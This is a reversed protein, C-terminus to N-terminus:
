SGRVTAPMAGHELVMRRQWPTSKFGAREKVEQQHRSMRQSVERGDIDVRNRIDISFKPRPPVAAATEKAARAAETAAKAPAVGVETQAQGLKNIEELRAHFAEREKRRKEKILRDAFTAARVERAATEESIIGLAALGKAGTAHASAIGREFSSRWEEMATRLLEFVFALGKIITTLMKAVMSGFARFYSMSEGTASKTAPGLWGFLTEFLQGLTNVLTEIASRLPAFYDMFGRFYEGITADLFAFVTGVVTKLATWAAKIIDIAGSVWQAVRVTDKGYKKTLETVRRQAQEADSWDVDLVEDLAQRFNSISGALDDFTGDFSKLLRLGLQKGLNAVSTTMRKWQHTSTESAKRFAEETAGAGQRMGEMAETFNAFGEQSVLNLITNGAEVSGFLKDIAVKDGKTIEVLDALFKAWGKTQVAATSFDKELDGIVEEAAKTPHAIGALVAKLGSMTEATVVGGKTVAVITSLLEDYSLGAGKAVAAARGVSRSVEEFTTVGKKNAINISDAVRLAEPATKLGWVNMVTTLGSVATKVDTYGGVAAKSAVEMFGLSEEQKVGASIAQFTADTMDKTAMGYKDSLRLIDKTMMQMQGPVVDLLTSIRAMGTELEGASTIMKKFAAAIGTVVAAIGLTPLLKGFSSFANGTRRMAPQVKDSSEVFRNFSGQAKKLGGVAPKEDFTLIGGLGLREFAM